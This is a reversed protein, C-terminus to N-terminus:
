VLLFERENKVSSTGPDPYSSVQAISTSVFGLKIDLLRVSELLIRVFQRRQVISSAHDSAIIGLVRNTQSLVTNLAISAHVVIVELTNDILLL